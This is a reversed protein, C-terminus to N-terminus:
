TVPVISISMGPADSNAGAGYLWVVGDTNTGSGCLFGFQFRVTDGNEIEVVAGGSCAKLYVYYLGLPYDYFLNSIQASGAIPAAPWSGGDPKLFVGGLLSTYQNKLFYWFNLHWTILFKRTDSGSYVFEGDTASDSWESSVSSTWPSLSPSSGAIDGDPVWVQQASSVSFDAINRTLWALSFDRYATLYSNFGLNTRAASATSAGTGGDAVPVDTGGARYVLNGEVNLNGASARTVTTDSAHGVNVGTFQPSDGTGVGLSTRATDGSEAVFDSGDGVIFKGDAPTLGAVDALTGTASITGTSTITGGTLGTGTAVSTVTGTAASSSGQTYLSGTFGDPPPLLSARSAMKSLEGNSGGLIQDIKSDIDELRVGLDRRFDNEASDKYEKPAGPLRGM